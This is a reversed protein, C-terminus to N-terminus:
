ELAARLAEVNARQVSLYDHGAARAADDLLECPSVTVSELGLEEGLLQALEPLPESEWLITEGPSEELQARLATLVEEGPMEGPDLDLNVMPWGHRAILYNYAPHSAYLHQGPAVEDLAALSDHLADLDAELAKFNARLDSEHDPLLRSLRGLIAAAQVKLNLPDMWTHADIGAHTHAEGGGHTHTVADDFEVFRERMAATSDLTRSLPLSVQDIWTELGAGHLVVLDAAQYDHVQEETPRWFLADADAPVDCRVDALGQALRTALYETPYFTTIVLPRARAEAVNMVEPADPGCATLTLLVLPSATLRLRRRSTKPTQMSTSQM